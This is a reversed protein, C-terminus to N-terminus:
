KEIIKQNAISLFFIDVFVCKKKGCANVIVRLASYNLM